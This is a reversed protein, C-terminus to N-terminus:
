RLLVSIVDGAHFEPVEPPLVAYCNARANAALDGSGHWPVLKVSPTRLDHTLRAPLVRMLGSKGEINEGLTAQVFRPGSAPEGCLVRLFPEVFCHFTVQTSIPNGPLGFFYCEPGAGDADELKPLRGFVLPKGPQMKVGTFFFEANFEALVEEVLDYKGMSVGGSFLLLDAARGRAIRDRVDERTDRATDLRIPAAGTSAVLAALGYSNSNRIQRDDPFQGIEVLEDGTAVIAVDPRAFADVTSCGCTAAEAIEAAGLLSSRAVVAEGLRAESSRSVINEGCRLARGPSLSIRDETLAVHEIMVVADAGPPVPAGTMIEIAEGATLAAGTWIDGARVQGIVKLATGASLDATRVAFGDRTSRDFPPQDRDALIPEALVRGASELLPLTETAPALRRERLLSAHKM